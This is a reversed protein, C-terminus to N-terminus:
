TAAARRGGLRGDRERARGPETETEYSLHSNASTPKTRPSSSPRGIRQGSGTACHWVACHRVGSFRALRRQPSRYDDRVTKSFGPGEDRSRAYIIAARKLTHASQLDVIADGEKVGYNRRFQFGEPLHKHSMAIAAHRWLLVTITTSLAAALREKIVM